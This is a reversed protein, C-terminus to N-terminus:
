THVPVDKAQLKVSYGELRLRDALEEQADVTSCKVMLWLEVQQGAATAKAAKLQVRLQDRTLKEQECKDLWFTQAAVDPVGGPDAITATGPVRLSAIEQHHSFPVDPRRREPPIAKCTYRANRISQIAYDTGYLVQSADEGYHEGYLQLDGVWFPSAKEVEMCWVVAAQWVDFPVVSEPVQAGTKMLLFPGHTCVPTELEEDVEIM